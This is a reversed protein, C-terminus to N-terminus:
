KQWNALLLLVHYRTIRKTQAIKNVCSLSSLKVLFTQVLELVVKLAVYFIYSHWSAFCTLAKAVLSFGVVLVVLSALLFLLFVTILM